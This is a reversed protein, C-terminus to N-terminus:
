KPWAPFTCTTKYQWIFYCKKWFRFYIINLFTLCNVLMNEVKLPHSQWWCLIVDEELCSRIYPMASPTMVTLWIPSWLSLQVTWWLLGVFSTYWCIKWNQICEWIEWSGCSFYLHLVVAMNLSLFVYCVYRQPLTLGVPVRNDTSEPEPSFSVLPKSTVQCESKWYNWYARCNKKWHQTSNVKKSWKWNVEVTSWYKLGTPLNYLELEEYPARSPLNM